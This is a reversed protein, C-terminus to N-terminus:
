WKMLKNKKAKPLKNFDEVPMVVFGNHFEIAVFDEVPPIYGKDGPERHGTVRSFGSGAPRKIENRCRNINEKAERIREEMNQM